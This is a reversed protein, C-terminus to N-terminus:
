NEKRRLLGLCVGLGVTMLCCVGLVSLALQGTILGVSLSVTGLALAGWRAAAIVLVAANKPRQRAVAGQRVSEVYALVGLGTLASAVYGFATHALVGLSAFGSALLVLLLAVLLLGRSWQRAMERTDEEEGWGTLAYHGLAIIPCYFRREREVIGIVKTDQWQKAEVDMAVIRKRLETGDIVRVAARVWPALSKLYRRTDTPIATNTEELAMSRASSLYLDYRAHRRLTRGKTIKFIKKELRETVSFGWKQMGVVREKGEVIQHDKEEHIIIHRYYHVDCATPTKWQILGVAARDALSDLLECVQQAFAGLAKDLARSLQTQASELPM